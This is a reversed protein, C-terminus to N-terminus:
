ICELLEDAVITQTHKVMKHPQCKFPQFVIKFSSVIKCSLFSKIVRAVIEFIIICYNQTKIVHLSKTGPSEQFLVSDREKM